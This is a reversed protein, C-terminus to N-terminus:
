WPPVMYKKLSATHGRNQQMEIEIVLRGIIVHANTGQFAFGSIGVSGEGCSAGSMRPMYTLGPEKAAVLTSSIYPNVASLHLLPHEVNQILRHHM